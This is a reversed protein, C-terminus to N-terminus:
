KKHDRWKKTPCIVLESSKRSADDSRDENGSNTKQKKRETEGKGPRVRAASDAREEIPKAPHVRRVIKGWGQVGSEPHEKDLDIRTV